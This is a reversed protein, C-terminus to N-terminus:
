RTKLGSILYWHHLLLHRELLPSGGRSSAELGPYGGWGVSVCALMLCTWDTMITTLGPTTGAGGKDCCRHFCWLASVHSPHKQVISKCIWTWDCFQQALSRVNRWVREVSGSAFPQPGWGM